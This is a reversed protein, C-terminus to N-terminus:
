RRLRVPATVGALKQRKEVAAQLAIVFGILAWYPPYYLVSIFLGTVAFAGLSVTLGRALLPLVPTQALVSNDDKDERIIRRLRGFMAFGIAFFLGTGVLGLEPIVTFYVSHAVRGGHARMQGPVYEASRQEYEWVTWPYNMAGVGLVPHDLFMEWGRRWSYLRDNRTRDETNSITRMEEVYDTSVFFLGSTALVAVILFNRLRQRSFYVVGMAVAAMGVFGGRSGSSIVGAVLILLVSMYFLKRMFGAKPSQMLYYAVPIAMNLYLSLDNEDSSYGGIGRGEHTIGWAAMIVHFLLWCNFFSVLRREDTLLGASPITASAWYFFMMLFTQYVWYTNVAYTVSLAVLAVFAGHMIILPDKLVKKDGAMLWVLPMLLTLMMPIRLPALAPLINQPRVYEFGFYLVLVWFAFGLGRRESSRMAATTGVAVTM